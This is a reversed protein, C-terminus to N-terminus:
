APLGGKKFVFWRNMFSYRKDDPSMELAKQVAPVSKDGRQAMNAYLSDFFGTSDDFGLEAAESVSLPSMSHEGMVKVLLRFDVLYEPLVQGISEMYVDIALGVNASPDDLSWQDAAYKRAISWTVADKQARGEARGDDSQALLSNVRAGDLCCGVFCGGPRLVTAVNRALNQLHEMSGFFYHIAFMCTALDYGGLAFGHYPRLKTNAIQHPQVLGWVVKAVTRDGNADDLTEIYAPGHVNMTADMPLMVIRPLATGRRKERMVRAYAGPNKPDPNELNSAFKDIGLVRSVGMDIWKYLDGGRGCGIDFLSRTRGKFKMLLADRKVWHNHFKRMPQTDGDDPRLGKAYYVDATLDSAAAADAPPAPPLKARGTIMEETVPNVITNWISLATQYNNASINGTAAYTEMKDWRVRLPRWADDPLSYAFEVVSNDTIEERNVCRLRGDEERELLCVHLDKRDSGPVDFLRPVYRRQPRHQQKRQADASEAEGTLYAMATIPESKSPDHGVYLDAVRYVKRSRVVLDDEGRLKVQFDITNMNPPKWKLAALWRGSPQPAGSPESAGVALLAPTFILGDVKYPLNGADSKALVARSETYVTSQGGIFRFEKVTVALKDPSSQHTASAATAIDAVAQRAAQLRSAWGGEAGGAQKRRNRRRATQRVDADVEVDMLPLARVDEGGVFFADFVAFLQTGLKTSEIHEGDLLVGALRKTSLGTAKVDLRDNLMFVRRSKDVFLLRREGDAKDTVTYDKLVSIGNIGGERLHEMELTCPKPGVFLRARARADTPVAGSARHVLAVYERLVADREAPTMLVDTDDIVKLLVTFQALLLKAVRPADESSPGIVEIEVEYTEPAQAMRDYRPVAAGTSLQRVATVDVRFLKDQTAFSFRKKLRWTKGPGTQAALLGSARDHPAEEKMNVRMRYDSLAVPPIRGRTKRMVSTSATDWSGQELATRIAREGTVSVRVSGAMADRGLPISVDLVDTVPLRVLSADESALYRLLRTITHRPLDRDSCIAEVEDLGDRRSQLMAVISQFASRDIRM